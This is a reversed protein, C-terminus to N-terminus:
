AGREETGLVARTGAPRALSQLWNVAVERGGETGPAVRHLMTSPYLNASGAGPQTAPEGGTTEMVLEGGAYSEPGGLFVTMSIDTRMPRDRGMVADDVHVGYAMGPEYRSFLM